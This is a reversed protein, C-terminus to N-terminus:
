IDYKGSKSPDKPDWGLVDLYEQPWIEIYMEKLYKYFVPDTHEPMKYDHYALWLPDCPQPDKGTYRDMNEIDYHHAVVKGDKITVAPKCAVAKIMETLKSYEDNYDSQSISKFIGKLIPTWLSGQAIWDARKKLLRILVRMNVFWYVRHVQAGPALRIDEGPIGLSQLVEYTRRIYDVTGNYREVAEPGGFMEISKARNVDMTSLDMTRSTQVWYGADRCRVLQDRWAVTANDVEFVFQIAELPPLDSDIMVKVLNTVIDTIPTESDKSIYEPYAKMIASRENTYVHKPYEASPKASELYLLYSFVLPNYNKAHRSGWWIAALLSMPSDPRSICSVSPIIEKTSKTGDMRGM